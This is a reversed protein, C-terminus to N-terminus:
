FFYSLYLPKIDEIHKYTRKNIIDLITGNSCGYRKALYSTTYLKYDPDISKLTKRFKYAGYKYKIESVQESTFTM